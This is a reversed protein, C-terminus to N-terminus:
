PFSIFFSKLFVKQSSSLDDDDSIVDNKYGDQDSLLIVGVGVFVMDYDYIIDWYYKFYGFILSLVGLFLGFHAGFTFCCELMKFSNGLMSFTATLVLSFGLILSGFVLFSCKDFNDAISATLGGFRISFLIIRWFQDVNLSFGSQWSGLCVILWM